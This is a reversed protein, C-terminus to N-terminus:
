SGGTRQVKRKQGPNGELYVTELGPMKDQGLEKDLGNLDAIRNDNAWFEELQKLHSVNEVKEIM